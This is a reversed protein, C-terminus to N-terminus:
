RKTTCVPYLDEICKAVLDSAHRRCVAAIGDKTSVENLEFDVAESQTTQKAPMGPPQVAQERVTVTIEVKKM